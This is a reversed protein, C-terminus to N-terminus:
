TMQGRPSSEQLTSSRWALEFTSVPDALGKLTLAGLDTFRYGGRSGVLARVVGSLLIQGARAEDCLRKAVIVPTGFYDDGTSSVEGSNLGIRLGIAEGSGQANRAAIRQQMAIACRVAALASSFGIMLGDGLSKVERGGLEAAAKRLVAFHERLMREGADDGLRDLLAASGALDTFLLSVVGTDSISDAITTSGRREVRADNFSLSTAGVRVVDGHRLRRRGGILQDNVFTGNRSIGDDVILWQGAAPVLESHVLSVSRDWPLRLDADDGRGITMAREGELPFVHENGARDPYLLFPATVDAM